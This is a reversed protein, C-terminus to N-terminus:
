SHLALQIQGINNAVVRITAIGGVLCGVTLIMVVLNLRAPAYKKVGYYFLFLTAGGAAVISYKWAMLWWFGYDYFVGKAYAGAEVLGLDLGIKTTLGDLFQGVILFVFSCFFWKSSFVPITALKKSPFIPM